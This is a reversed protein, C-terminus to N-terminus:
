WATNMFYEFWREDVEVPRRLTKLGWEQAEEFWGFWEKGQDTLEYGGKVKDVFGYVLCKEIESMHYKSARLECARGVGVKSLIKLVAHVRGGVKLRVIGNQKARVYRYLM